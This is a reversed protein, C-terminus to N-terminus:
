QFKPFCTITDWWTSHNTQRTGQHWWAGAPQHIHKWLWSGCWRACQPNWRWSWEPSGFGNWRSIQEHCTCSFPKLLDSSHEQCPCFAGSLVQVPSSEQFCSVLKITYDLQIMSINMKTIQSDNVIDRQMNDNCNQSYSISTPWMWRSWTEHNGSQPHWMQPTMRGFSYMWQFM